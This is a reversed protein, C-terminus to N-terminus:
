EAGREGLLLLARARDVVVVPLHVGAPKLVDICPAGDALVRRHAAGVDGGVDALVGPHARERELVADDVVRVRRIRATDVPQPAHVLPEVARGLTAVLGSRPPAPAVLVLRVRALTPAADRVGPM